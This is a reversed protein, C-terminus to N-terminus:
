RRFSGNEQEPPQWAPTYFWAFIEDHDAETYVRIVADRVTVPLQDRWAKDGGSVKVLAETGDVSRTVSLECAVAKERHKARFASLVSANLGDTRMHLWVNM